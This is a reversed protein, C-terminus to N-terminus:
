PGYSFALSHHPAFSAASKKGVTIDLSSHSESSGQVNEFGSAPIVTATCTYTDSLTARLSPIDLTIRYVGASDMVLMITTSRGGPGGLSGTVIVDSDVVAPDLQITCTLTLPDGNHLIVTANPDRSMALTPPPVTLFDFYAHVCMCGCVRVCVRVCARVCACACVRVRACARVCARVRARACACVRVRACACVRVRACACVCVRM